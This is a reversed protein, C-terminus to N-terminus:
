WYLTRRPTFCVGAKMRKSNGFFKASWRQESDEPIHTTIVNTTPLTEYVDEVDEHAIFYILEKSRVICDTISNGAFLDNYIESNM